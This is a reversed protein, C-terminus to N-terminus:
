FGKQFIKNKYSRVSAESIDLKEAILADTENKLHYVQMERESLVAEISQNLWVQQGNDNSGGYFFNGVKSGERFNKFLPYHDLSVYVRKMKGKSIETLIDNADTKLDKNIM